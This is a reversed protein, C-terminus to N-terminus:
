SRRHRYWWSAFRLVVVCLLACCPVVVCLLACCRVFFCLLAILIACCLLAFRTSGLRDAVAAGRRRAHRSPVHSVQYSRGGEDAKCALKAPHRARVKASSPSQGPGGRRQHRPMLVPFPLHIRAAAVSRCAAARRAQDLRRRVGRRRADECPHPRVAPGGRLGGAFPQADSPGRGRLRSGPLGPREEAVSRRKGAHSVPVQGAPGGM